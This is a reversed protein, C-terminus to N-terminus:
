VGGRGTLLGPMLTHTRPRPRCACLGRTGPVCVACAGPQPARVAGREGGARAARPAPGSRWPRRPDQRHHVHPRVGAPGACGRRSCTLLGVHLHSAWDSALGAHTLQFSACVGVACRSGALSPACAGRGSSSARRTRTASCSTMRSGRTWRPACSPSARSRRPFINHSENPSVCTAHARHLSRWRPLPFARLAVARLRLASCCCRRLCCVHLFAARPPACAAAVRRAGPLQQAGGGV